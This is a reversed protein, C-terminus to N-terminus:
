REPRPGNRKPASPVGPLLPAAPCRADGQPSSGPRVGPVPRASRSQQRPALARSLSLLRLPSRQPQRRRRGPEPPSSPKGSVKGTAQRPVRPCAPCAAGAGRPVAAGAHPRRSFLCLSLTLFAPPSPLSPLRPPFPLAGPARVGRPQWHCFPSLPPTLAPSPRPPFPFPLFPLFLLPAVRVSASSPGALGSGRPSSEERGLLSLASRGDGCRRPSRAGPDRCRPSFRGAAPFRLSCGGQGEPCFFGPLLCLPFSLISFFFSFSFFPIFHFPPPSPVVATGGEKEAQPAYSLM